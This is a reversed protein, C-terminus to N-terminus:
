KISLLDVTFVLVASGPVAPPSGMMGYGLDPPIVLQRRGGVRMGILGEAWGQIVRRASPTFAYSGSDFLTGDALRGEYHVSLLRDATAPAGSGVLLDRYYLGSASRTMAKLDVALTPAYRTSELVSDVPGGPVAAAPPPGPPVVDPKKSCGAVAALVVLAAAIRQPM